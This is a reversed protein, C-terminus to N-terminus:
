DIGSSTPCGNVSCFCMTTTLLPPTYLSYSSLSLSISSQRLSMFTGSRGGGLVFRHALSVDIIGGLYTPNIATYAFLLVFASTYISVLVVLSLIHMGLHIAVILSPSVMMGTRFIDLLLATTSFSQLTVRHSSHWSYSSKSFIESCHSFFITPDSNSPSVGMSSLAFNYLNSSSSLFSAISFICISWSRCRTLYLLLLDAAFVYLSPSTTM